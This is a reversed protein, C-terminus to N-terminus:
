FSEWEDSDDNQPVYVRDKKSEQKKYELIKEHYTKANKVEKPLVDRARVFKGNKCKHEKIKDLYFFVKSTNDEIDHAINLLEKDRKNNADVDIYKQVNKHINEHVKLLEEWDANKTYPENAHKEIWKGLDCETCTKVKWTQGNGVKSFNNEKFIIHDLKLKTTDFVLNVDCVFDKRKKDFKTREVISVLNSSLESLAMAKQSVSESSNANEQTAKDLQNIVDNIQGMGQRQEGSAESVETVLSAVESVKSNLFNFSEVMKDATDKGEKTKEQAFTVIEKIKKAAEASRGALNRVEQAVVAFGKGAEGATAAEVAANLSLINTQFAIQDIITIAEVIDNTAQNIGEMAQGTKHALMDDQKSTSELDKAITMMKQTKEDTHSIASTIEEIAAATEELSAAQQTSSSSLMESTRALEKASQALRTSTNDVMCLIESISVGLANTGKILSGINGSSTTEIKYEYKANGYEIIANTILALNDRTVKLMENVNQKLEEVQASNAVEKIEYTYFGERAKHVIDIAEDIVKADKKIGDEIQQLYSNFNLAVKGIEDERTVEVRNSTDSNRSISLIASNLQNLPEIIIKTSFIKIILSTIILIAVILTLAIYIIKQADMVSADVINLDEGVVYYGIKKNSYDIIPKLTVFYNDKVLYGKQEISKLDLTAAFEAFDKNFSKQNLAYKGVSKLSNVNESFVISKDLLMLLHANNYKSMDKIISNYGAKFEISGLYEGNEIIPAVGVLNVNSVGIETGVVAKKENFVTSISGRKSLLKDGNKEPKWSRLFSVGNEDHIHIKINKFNTNKKFDASLTQLISVLEERNKNKLAVKIRGDNAISIANSICIEEKALLKQEVISNLSNASKNYVDIKIGSIYFSFIIMTIVLGVLSSILILLNLKNGIKWNNM